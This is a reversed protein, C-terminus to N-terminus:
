AVCLIFTKTAKTKYITYIQQTHRFLNISQNITSWCWRSQYFVSTTPQVIAVTARKTGPSRRRSWIVVSEVPKQYPPSGHKLSCSMHSIRWEQWLFKGCRYFIDSTYDDTATGMLQIYGEALSTKGVSHSLLIVDATRSLKKDIFV